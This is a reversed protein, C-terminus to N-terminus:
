RSRVLRFGIGNSKLSPKSYIRNTCRIDEPGDSFSGGRIAKFNGTKPGRPNDSEGKQYYNDSYWDWCWEWVNGSMDYLGLANPKFSGVPWPMRRYDGPKFYKATSNYNGNFNIQAPDAVDQGNGFRM